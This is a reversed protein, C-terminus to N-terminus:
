KGYGAEKYQKGEKIYELANDINRKKEIDTLPRIIKAPSGLALMGDVIITNQTILAGAGIICNAGIVAGDLIVAGMGILTNAGIKAGHVISGHGIIAQKGIHVPYSEDVHLICGDQINAGEEIVIRDRDGRIVAQFWVSADEKIIVDGVITATNAIFTNSSIEPIKM